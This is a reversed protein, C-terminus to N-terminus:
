GYGNGHRHTAGNDDHGHAHGGSHRQLQEDADRHAVRTARDDPRKDGHRDAREYAYRNAFAQRRPPSAV